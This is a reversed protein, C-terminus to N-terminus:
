SIPRQIISFIWFKAFINAIEMQGENEKQKEKNLFFEQFIMWHIRIMIEEGTEKRIQGTGAGMCSRAKKREEKAFLHVFLFCVFLFLYTPFFACSVRVFGYFYLIIYAFSWLSSFLHWFLANHSLVIWLVTM